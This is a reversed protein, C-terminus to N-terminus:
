RRHTREEPDTGIRWAGSTPAGVADTNWKIRWNEGKTYRTVLAPGFGFGNQPAISGVAIHIPHGTVLTAACGFFKKFASCDEKLSEMERRLEAAFKGEDAPQSAPPQSTQASAVMPWLVFLTVALTRM